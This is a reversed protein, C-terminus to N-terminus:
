KIGRHAKIQEYASRIERTREKAVEMMSDPLGKAVLKDPHHENMLRRYATKVQQDSAESELGLAKYAQDLTNARQTGQQHQGFSRQARLVAELHALEVRGVGLLQAIRWLLRREAATISGKSVAMDMQIELFARILEPQGACTRRLTAVRDDINADARKGANFLDIAQRVDEPRLQMRHMVTRAAQIEEESVRGDAKALHGMVLFTTEFFVRQREASSAGTTFPGAGTNLGRDFQHGLFGGLLAGIPSGGSVIFGAIAGGIKGVWTM